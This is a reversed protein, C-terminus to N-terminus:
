VCCVVQDFRSRELGNAVDIVVREMGGVGLSDLVHLIKIKRESMLCREIAHLFLFKVWSDVHISVFLPLHHFVCLDDLNLFSVHENTNIRPQFENEQYRDKGRAM